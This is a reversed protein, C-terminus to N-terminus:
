AIGLLKRLEATTEAWSRTIPKLPPLDLIKVSEEVEDAPPILGYKYAYQYVARKTRGLDEALEDLTRKGWNTKLYNLDTEQWREYKAM